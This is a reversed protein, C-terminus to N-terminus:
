APGASLTREADVRRRSHRIERSVTDVRICRSRGRSRRGWRTAAMSSSLLAVETVVRPRGRPDVGGKTLKDAYGPVRLTGHSHIGRQDADVPASALLRSDMENMGCAAFVLAVETTLCEPPFRREQESGAYEAM